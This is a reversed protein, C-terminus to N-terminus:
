EAKLAIKRIEAMFVEILDEPKKVIDILKACVEDSVSRYHLGAAMLDKKTEGIIPTACTQKDAFRRALVKSRLDPITKMYPTVIDYVRGEADELWFHVDLKREQPKSYPSSTFDAETTFGAGGYEYWPLNAAHGTGRAALGMGRSGVPARVKRGSCLKGIGLSGAVVHIGHVDRWKGFRMNYMAQTLCFGAVMVIGEEPIPVIGTAMILLFLPM